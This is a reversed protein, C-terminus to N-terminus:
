SDSDPVNLDLKHFSNLKNRKKDDASITYLNAVSAFSKNVVFKDFRFKIKM